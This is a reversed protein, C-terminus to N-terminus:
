FFIYLRSSFLSLVLNPPWAGAEEQAASSSIWYISNWPTLVPSTLHSGPSLHEIGLRLVQSWGEPLMRHLSLIPERVSDEGQCMRTHVCVRM